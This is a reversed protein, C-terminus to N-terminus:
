KQRSALFAEFESKLDAPLVSQEKASSQIGDKNTEYSLVDASTSQNNALMRLADEDMEFNGVKTDGSQLREAAGMQVIKSNGLVKSTFLKAEEPVTILLDIYQEFAASETFSAVLEPSKSFRNGDVRKGYAAEVLKSIVTIIRMVNQSEIVEELFQGLDKDSGSLEESLRAVEVTSLNFYLDETVSQGEYNEYTFTKKLM